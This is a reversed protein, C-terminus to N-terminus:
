LRDYKTEEEDKEIKMIGWVSAVLIILCTIIGKAGDSITLGDCQIGGGILLLGIFAGAFGIGSFAGIINNKM